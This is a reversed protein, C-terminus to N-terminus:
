TLNIYANGLPNDAHDLTGFEYDFMVTSAECKLRNEMRLLGILAGKGLSDLAARSISSPIDCIISQNSSAYISERWQGALKPHSDSVPM